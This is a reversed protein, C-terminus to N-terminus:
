NSDSLQALLYCNGVRRSRGLQPGGRLPEGKDREQPCRTGRRVRGLQCPCRGEADVERERGEVSAQSGPRDQLADMM